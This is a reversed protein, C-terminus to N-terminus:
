ASKRPGGSSNGAAPSHLVVELEDCLLMGARNPMGCTEVPAEVMSVSRASVFVPKMACLFHQVMRLLAETNVQMAGHESSVSENTDGRTHIGNTADLIM